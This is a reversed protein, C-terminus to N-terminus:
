LVLELVDISNNMAFELNSMHGEIADTDAGDSIAKIVVCKDLKGYERAVSLISFAEMECVDAWFKERLDTVKETDDIFQDWTVCIGSLILGFKSLDYNQGIAYELFITKKAYDLHEWEFPLYIDHQIFTNPIFVDWVKVDDNGGINWAIWVNILKEVDYNELIYSTAIASQIKGIGSNVLVIRENEGDVERIGEYITINELKKVEKLGFRQVILDWEEKMATIVAKVIEM